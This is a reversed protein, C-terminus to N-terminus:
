GSGGPWLFQGYEADKYKGAYYGSMSGRNDEKEQEHAEVMKNWAEEKEKEMDRVWTKVEDLCDSLPVCDYENGNEPLSYHDCWPHLGKM